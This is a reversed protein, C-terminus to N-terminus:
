KVVAFSSSCIRTHSRSIGLGFHCVQQSPGCCNGGCFLHTLSFRPLVVFSFWVLLIVICICYSVSMAARGNQLEVLRRKDNIKIKLPNWGLDGTLGGSQLGPAVSEGVKIEGNRHTLEYIEIAAIVAFVQAYGEAPIASLAALPGMAALDAFKVNQTVSLYEHPTFKDFTIGLKQLAFGVTAVMASRGHKLESFVYDLVCYLPSLVVFRRFILCFIYCITLLFCFYGTWKEDLLL